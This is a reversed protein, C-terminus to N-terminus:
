GRLGKSIIDHPAEEIAEIVEAGHLEKGSPQPNALVLLYFTQPIQLMRAVSTMPLPDGVVVVVSASVHGAAATPWRVPAVGSGPAATSQRSMASAATAM